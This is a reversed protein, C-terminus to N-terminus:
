SYRNEFDVTRGLVTWARVSGGWESASEGSCRGTRCTENVTHAIYTFWKFFIQYWIKSYRKWTQINSLCTIIVTSCSGVTSLVSVHTCNTAWSCCSLHAGDLNSYTCKMVNVCRCFWSVICKDSRIGTRLRGHSYQLGPVYRLNSEFAHVTGAMVSFWLLSRIFCAHVGPVWGSVSCAKGWPVM